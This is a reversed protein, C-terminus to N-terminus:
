RRSYLTEYAQSCQRDYMQIRKDVTTPYSQFVPITFLSSRVERISSFHMKKEVNFNGLCSNGSVAYVVQGRCNLLHEKSTKLRDVIIFVDHSNDKVLKMINDRTPYSVFVIDKGFVSNTISKGQSIWDYEKYYKQYVEGVPMLFVLKVKKYKVREIYSRLGLSFSTLFPCDGIEKIRIVNLEQPYMIQSFFVVSEIGSVRLPASERSERLKEVNDQIKKQEEQVKSILKASNTFLETATTSMKVLELDKERYAILMNEVADKVVSLYGPNISSSGDKLYRNFFDALVDSGGLEIIGTVGNLDAVLGNLDDTSSLFFEDDIYKGESGVVIMQVAQELDSKNRIYIITNVKDKIKTLLKVKEDVPEPSKHYILYQVNGRVEIAQQLTSVKLFDNYQVKNDTVIINM